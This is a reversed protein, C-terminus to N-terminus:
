YYPVCEGIFTVNRIHQLLQQGDPAPRLKECLYHTTGLNNVCEEEILNHIGHAIAYVADVLFLQVHNNIIFRINSSSHM